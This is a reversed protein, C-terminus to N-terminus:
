MVTVNRKTLNETILRLEEQQRKRKRALNRRAIKIEGGIEDCLMLLGQANKLGEEWLDSQKFAYRVNRQVSAPNMYYINGVESYLTKIGDMNGHRYLIKVLQFILKTGMLTKDFHNKELISEIAKDLLILDEIGGARDSGIRRDNFILDQLKKAAKGHSKRGDIIYHQRGATDGIAILGHSRMMQNIALLLNSDDCVIYIGIEDGLTEAYGFVNKKIKM